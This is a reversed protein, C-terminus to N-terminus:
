VLALCLAVFAKMDSTGRGYLRGGRQTLTFPDSSWPQGEVPVVDTHGSLVLGDPADPGISAWLNAKPQGDPAPVLESQVGHGGLHDRIWQILDLNSRASVPAFAVLRELFHIAIQM